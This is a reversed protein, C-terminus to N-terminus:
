FQTLIAKYFTSSKVELDFRKFDILVLLFKSKETLTRAGYWGLVYVKELFSASVSTFLASFSTGTAMQLGEMPSYEYYHGLIIMEVGKSV